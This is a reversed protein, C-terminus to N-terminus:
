VYEHNYLITLEKVCCYMENLNLQTFMGVIKNLIIIVNLFIVFKERPWYYINKM